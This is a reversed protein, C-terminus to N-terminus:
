SFTCSSVVLILSWHSPVACSIIYMASAAVVWLTGSRGAGHAHRRQAGHHMHIGPITEAQNSATAQAM